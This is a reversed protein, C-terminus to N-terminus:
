VSEEEVLMLQRLGLASNGTLGIEAFIESQMTYLMYTNFSHLPKLHKTHKQQISKDKGEKRVGTAQVPFLCLVECHLRLCCYFLSYRHDKSKGVRSFINKHEVQFFLKETVERVGM